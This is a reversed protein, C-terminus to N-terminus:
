QGLMPVMAAAEALSRAILVRFPGHGRDSVMARDRAGHGTLVLIAGQLGARQGALVDGRTDGVIWSVGLDIPLDRAAKLLMGPAPKRGFHDVAQYPPLADAHHACAFIADLQAGEIALLRIMEANVAEFDAWGYYGRGIGAQNAVVVVLIGLENARSITSSANAILRVDDARGLYGVEEVIVGDRDLFLAPGIQSSSTPRLIRGYIGDESASNLLSV